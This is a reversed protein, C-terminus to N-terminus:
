AMNENSSFSGDTVSFSYTSGVALTTSMATYNAYGPLATAGTTNNITNLTVNSIYDTGDYSSYTIPCFASTPNPNVTLAVNQGPCLTPPTGSAAISMTNPTPTIALTALNGCGDYAGGSNDTATVTYTTAVAPNVTFPGTGTQNFGAPSSTWTFIYGANSSSVSLDTPNGACPSLYTATANIAPAPNVTALVATRASECGTSVIWNYFYYYLTQYIT